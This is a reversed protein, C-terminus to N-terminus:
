HAQNKIEITHCNRYHFYDFYLHSVEGNKITIEVGRSDDRTGPVPDYEDYDPKTPALTEWVNAPDGDLNLAGGQGCYQLVAKIIDVGVYWDFRHFHADTVEIKEIKDGEYTEQLSYCFLSFDRSGIAFHYNEFNRGFYDQKRLESTYDELFSFTKNILTQMTNETIPFSVNEVINKELVTPPCKIMVGPLKPHQTDITDASLDVIKLRLNMNM